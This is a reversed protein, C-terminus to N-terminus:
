CQIRFCQVHMRAQFHRAIKPSTIEHFFTEFLIAEYLYVIMREKKKELTMDARNAKLREVTREDWEFLDIM